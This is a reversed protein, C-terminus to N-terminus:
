LNNRIIRIEERLNNLQTDVYIEGGGKYSNISSPLLKNRISSFNEDSPKYIDQNLGGKLKKTIKNELIDYLSPSSGKFTRLVNKIPFNNQSALKLLKDANDISKSKGGNCNYINGKTCIDNRIYKGGLAKFYKEFNKERLKKGGSLVIDLHDLIRDRNKIIIDDKEGPIIKMEGKKIKLFGIYTNQDYKLIDSM